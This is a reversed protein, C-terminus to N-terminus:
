RRAFRDEDGHVIMVAQGGNGQEQGGGHRQAQEHATQPQRRRSPCNVLDSGTASPMVPMVQATIGVETASNASTTPPSTIPAMTIPKM